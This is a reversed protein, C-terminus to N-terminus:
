RSGMRKKVDNRVLAYDLGNFNYDAIEKFLSNAKDKNGAGEDALALWYKVVVTPQKIKEFHGAADPFKKQKMAIYGMTTEYDDLKNPDTLPSVTSKMEEAKAAAADLNGEMAASYAQWRLMTAKQGLKAEQTGVDNAEQMTMPEIMAILEKVRAADNNMVAINACDQLCMLRANNTKGQDDGSANMKAAEDSLWTMATKVDGAYLYTYATFQISSVKSEDHRGGDMYDKRAEDFNGLFTNAHGKKYYPESNTTDLQIAKSYADRAKALDNQARYCDGLAIEAGSSAPALEVVKLANEEAKKFDKPDNFVYSITLAGYGGTWKPDLEIAKNFCARAKEQDNGGSYTFGLDVQARAADPYMSAIKQAIELRKNWDMTMFTGFYDCYMKEWDSAGELNAKAKDVDGTFEKPSRDSGARLIYALGLKPDQDIAKTFCARAKQGDGQDMYAMGQRISAEAEKSQTTVPIDTIKGPKNMNCGSIIAIIALGTFYFYRNIKKM